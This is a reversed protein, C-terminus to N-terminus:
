LIDETNLSVAICEGRCRGSERRLSCRGQLSLADGQLGRPRALHRSCHMGAPQAAEAADSEAVGRAGAWWAGRDVPNELCSYQLPNGRGRGLSRESGPVSGVDRTDGANAPPNKVM